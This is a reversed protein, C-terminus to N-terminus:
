RWPPRTHRSWWTMPWDASRARPGARRLCSVSLQAVRGQPQLRVGLRGMARRPIKWVRDSTARRGPLHPRAPHKRLVPMVLLPMLYEFMSGSWSVLLPEARSAVLLRGLSFWHDQPVQGLAIAVYSCLRAESALLDYYSSDCRSNLFMSASRFCTGRRISSFRSTWPPSITAKDRSIRWCFWGSASCARGSGAPLAAPNGVAGNGVTRRAGPEVFNGVVGGRDLARPNRRAALDAPAHGTAGAPLIDRRANAPDIRTLALWPSLLLMEKLHDECDVQAAAGLPRLKKGIRRFRRNEGGTGRHSEVVGVGRAPSAPAKQLEEEMRALAANEPSLERIIRVTDLLGAFIEPTYTKEDPLERLGAALTLLHGALNGSDVSSIYLPLLPELTRTDYWNYFHGRYRKLRQMTALTDQTRQIMGDTSLYGFDLAALNALLALGM